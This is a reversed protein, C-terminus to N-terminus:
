ISCRFSKFKDYIFGWFDLPRQPEMIYKARKAKQKHRYLLNRSILSIVLLTLILLILQMFSLDFYKAGTVILLTSITGKVVFFIIVWLGGKKWNM